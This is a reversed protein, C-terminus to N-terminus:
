FVQSDKSDSSSTSSTIREQSPNYGFHYEEGECEEESSWSSSAALSEIKSFDKDLPETLDLSSTSSNTKQLYNFTM